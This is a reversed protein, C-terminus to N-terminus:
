KLVGAADLVTAYVTDSINTTGHKSALIRVAEEFKAFQPTTLRVQVLKNSTSPLGSPLGGTPEPAVPRPPPSAPGDVPLPEASLYRSLDEPKFALELSLDDAWEGVQFEIDRLLKGLSEADFDGRKQNMKITLAKAQAESINDLFVAPGEAMGLECAARWRHEGDIIIDKREGKDDTAWILLAQSALWGDTKMGHVISRMKHPPVRNPNWPNPRVSGLPIHVVDGRIQPTPAPTQAKTRRAM